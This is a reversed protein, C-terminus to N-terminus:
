AFNQPGYNPVQDYNQIQGYNQPPGYSQPQDYNQSGFNQPAGFNQPGQRRSFGRGRSGRQRCGGKSERNPEADWQQRGASHSCRDKRPSGEANRYEQVGRDASCDFRVRRAPLATRPSDGRPRSDSRGAFCVPSTSCVKNTSLQKLQHQIAELKVALTPDTPPAVPMCMEGIKAHYVLESWTTPQTRTIHHRIEPKLGNIVAFWLMNEDACVKGELRQMKACFNDVSSDGNQTLCTM